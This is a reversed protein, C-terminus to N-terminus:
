DKWHGQGGLLQWISTVMVIVVLVILNNTAMTDSSTPSTGYPNPPTGSPTSVPSAKPASIPEKPVPPSSPPRSPSRLTTSVTSSVSISISASPAISTNQSNSAITPISSPAKPASAETPATPAGPVNPARTTFLSVASSPVSSESQGMTVPAQSVSPSSEPASVSVTTPTTSIVPPCHGEITAHTLKCVTTLYMQQSPTQDAIPTLAGSTLISANDGLCCDAASGEQTKCICALSNFTASQQLSLANTSFCIRKGYEQIFNLYENFKVLGDGNRDAKHLDSYCGPYDIGDTPTTSSTNQAAIGSTYVVTLLFLSSRM